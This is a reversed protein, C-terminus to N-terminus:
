EKMRFLAEGAGAEGWTEQAVGHALDSLGFIAQAGEATPDGASGPGWAGPDADVLIAVTDTNAWYFRANRVGENSRAFRCMTLAATGLADRDAGDRREWKTVHLPM